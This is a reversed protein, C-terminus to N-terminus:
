ILSCLVKSPPIQYRTTHPRFSHLGDFTSYSPPVVLVISRGASVRNCKCKSIVQHRALKLTGPDFRDGAKPKDEEEEENSEKEEENASKNEESKETKEIPKEVKEDKKTSGYDATASGTEHSDDKDEKPGEATSNEDASPEANKDEAANAEVEWKKEASREPDIKASEVTRAPTPQEVGDGDEENLESEFDASEGTYHDVDSTTVTMARTRSPASQHMSSTRALDSMLMETVENISSKLTFISGVLVLIPLVRKGASGLVM